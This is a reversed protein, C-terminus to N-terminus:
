PRAEQARIRAKVRLILRFLKDVRIKQEETLQDWTPGGDKKRAM